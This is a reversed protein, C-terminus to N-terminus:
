IARLRPREGTQTRAARLREAFEGTGEATQYFSEAQEDTLQAALDDLDYHLWWSALETWTLVFARVPYRADGAEAPRPRDTPKAKKKPTSDKIRNLAETALEHLHVDRGAQDDRHLARLLQYIPDVPNGAEIQALGARAEARLANTLDPDDALHQLYDIKDLTKYSPAGPIMAAAQERTKGPPTLPPPFNGGGNWRPQHETSFRTAQDRRAADEAILEKIERYLGAAEVPSLTKHLQNDDQEALLHGLRDSISSRVWVNVTRWGLQRIAALRRAGCVLMGDPTITIPQLLGDREISATLADLDGLDRRHRHGVQIAEVTRDLEIHGAATNVICGM